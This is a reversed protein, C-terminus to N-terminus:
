KQFHAIAKDYSERMAAWASDAGAVLDKWADGGSAQLEMLKATAEERHKRLTELQMEYDIRMDKQAVKAKDEWKTLETNWQELNAKLQEVYENRTTM